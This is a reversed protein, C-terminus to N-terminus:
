LHSRVARRARGDPFGVDAEAEPQTQSISRRDNGRAARAAQESMGRTDDLFLPSFVPFSESVHPKGTGGESKRKSHTM